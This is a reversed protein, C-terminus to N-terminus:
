TADAVGNDAVAGLARVIVETHIAQQADNVVFQRFRHGIGFDVQVRSPGAAAALISIAARPGEARGALYGITRMGVYLDTAM